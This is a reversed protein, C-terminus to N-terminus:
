VSRFFVVFVVIQHGFNVLLPDWTEAFNSCALILSKM